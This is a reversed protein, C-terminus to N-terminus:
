PHPNESFGTLIRYRSSARLIAFEAQRMDPGAVDYSGPRFDSGINKMIQCSNGFHGLRPMKGVKFMGLIIFLEESHSLRSDPVTYFSPIRETFFSTGVIM